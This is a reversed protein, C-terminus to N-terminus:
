GVSDRSVRSRGCQKRLSGVTWTSHLIMFFERFPVNWGPTRKSASTGRSRRTAASSDGKHLLEDPWQAALHVGQAVYTAAM